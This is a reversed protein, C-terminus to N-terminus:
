RARKELGIMGALEHTLQEDTVGPMIRTIVVDRVARWFVTFEVDDMRHFAISKPVRVEEGDMTVLTECHGALVKLASAVQEVTALRSQNDHVLKCLAWFNKHRALDRPRTVTTRLDQGRKLSGM